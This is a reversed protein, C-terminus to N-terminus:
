RTSHYMLPIDALIVFHSRFFRVGISKRALEGLGIIDMQESSTFVQYFDYSLGVNGFFQPDDCSLSVPINYNLLLAIPHTM